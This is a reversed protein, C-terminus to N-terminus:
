RSTTANEKARHPWEPAGVIVWSEYSIDGVGGEGGLHHGPSAGNGPVVYPGKDHHDASATKNTWTSPQQAEGYAALAARWYCATAAPTLYRDRLSDRANDAIARASLSGLIGKQKARNWAGVAGTQRGDSEWLGRVAEELGDFGPGPLEIYNQTPKTVDSILAPHFHQTWELKHAITISHCSLLYKSRGSYSNGESHILYKRRCHEELKVLPRYEPGTEGGFTTAFVDAWANPDGQPLHSPPRTRDMLDKRIPYWNPFGRWFARDDKREWHWTQEEQRQLEVVEPYTPAQAEPWGMFGFDPALWTGKAKEDQIRKTLVWSPGEEAGPFGDRDGTSIVLDVPPLSESSRTGNKSAAFAPDTLIANNLLALIAKQRTDDGGHYRRIWLRGDRIIVRAWAWRNQGAAAEELRDVHEKTIGGRSSWHKKLEDLQPYLLPFQAKCASQPFTLATRMQASLPTVGNANPKSTAADDQPPTGAGSKWPSTSNVAPTSSGLLTDPSLHLLSFAFSAVLFIAAIVPPLQTVWTKM